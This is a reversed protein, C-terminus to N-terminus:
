LGASARHISVRSARKMVNVSVCERSYRTMPPVMCTAVCQTAANPIPHPAKAAARIARAPRATSASRHQDRQEDAGAAPDRSREQGPQVQEDRQVHEPAVALLRKRRQADLVVLIEKAQVDRGVARQGDVWDLQRSDRAPPPRRVGRSRSRVGERSTGSSVSSGPSMSGGM